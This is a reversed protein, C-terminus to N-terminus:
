DELVEVETRRNAQHEAPTCDVGNSCKNVLRKEGYGKAVLRDKAIGRSIIYDVAAQARRQSLAENYSDSGRSDTHSSLEIKLTAHKKLTAVLEDLILAADPRINHKDFDYYINELVFKDGKKLQPELRLTYEIVTDKTARIPAVNLEDSYFDKKEGLLRYPTNPEITFKIDSGPLETLGKSVIANGAGYLTVTSQPLLDGTKKNRTIAKLIINIKPKQYNFSYIDDFGAGGSRNSTLYGLTQNENESSVVFAFDDSASNLPYGLNIPKNFRGKEGVAKFIDLGGMGVLGNSSYYLTNKHMSPFMEDGVTNVADGANQPTGWSGDSQLESYWIDVGGKGGPMDSAYYLVKGDESLSAHGLSYEKVNNYPFDTEKWSSGNKTYIKLELNHKKWKSGDAKYVETHKGPYTRTVFLTEMDKTAAIPGIHFDASNFSEQLQSPNSLTGDSARDASFVRLYARGTMGSKDRVSATPEAAFYAGDATPLVSFNNFATNVAEENRLKHLTPNKMWHIASDAGVLSQSIKDTSGFKQAYSDYQVKAEAYKGQQKLVEAYNLLSESTVKADNVARAYVAEAKSYEKNYFYSHALRELDQLRPKKTDVLKEYSAAARAYEMSLYLQDARERRTPQEQAVAINACLATGLLISFIRIHNRRIM